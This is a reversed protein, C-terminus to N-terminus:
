VLEDASAGKDAYGNIFLVKLEPRLTRGADALQRGNMHGTLGVDSVLLDIRQSSSLVLLGRAGDGVQM